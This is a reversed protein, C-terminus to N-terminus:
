NWFMGPTIQIKLFLAMIWMASRFSSLISRTLKTCTHTPTEANNHTHTHTLTLSLSPSHTCKITIIGEQFNATQACCHSEKDKTLRGRNLLQWCFILFLFKSGRVPLVRGWHFLQKKMLFSKLFTKIKTLWAKISNLAYQTGVLWAWSMPLRNYCSSVFSFANMILFINIAKAM